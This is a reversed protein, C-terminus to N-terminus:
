YCGRKLPEIKKQFLLSMYTPIHGTVEPYIQCLKDNVVITDNPIKEVYAEKDNYDYVYLPQYPDIYTKGYKNKEQNHEVLGYSIGSNHRVHIHQLDQGLVERINSEYILKGSRNYIFNFKAKITADLNIVNTGPLHGGIEKDCMYVIANRTMVIKYTPRHYPNATYDNKLDNLTRCFVQVLEILERTTKQKKENGTLYGCDYIDNFDKASPIIKLGFGREGRNKMDFPLTLDKAEITYYVHPMVKM